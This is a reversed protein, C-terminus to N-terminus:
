VADEISQSTKFFSTDISLNIINKVNDIQKEDLNLKNQMKASKLDVEIREKIYELASKVSMMVQTKKNLKEKKM